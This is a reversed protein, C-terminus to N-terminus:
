LVTAKYACALCFPDWFPFPLEPCGEELLCLRCGQQPSHGGLDMAKAVSTGGFMLLTRNQLTREPFVYLCASELEFGFFEPHGGCGRWATRNQPNPSVRGHSHSGEKLRSFCCSLLSSSLGTQLVSPASRANGMKLTKTKRLSFFFLNEAWVGAWSDVIIFSPGKKLNGKQEARPSAPTSTYRVRIFPKPLGM